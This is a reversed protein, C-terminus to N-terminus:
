RRKGFVRLIKAFLAAGFAVKAAKESPVLGAEAAEAAVQSVQEAGGAIENIDAM